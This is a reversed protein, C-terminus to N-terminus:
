LVGIRTVVCTMQAATPRAVKDLLGAVVCSLTEPDCHGHCVHLAWGFHWRTEMCVAGLAGDWVWQKYASRM